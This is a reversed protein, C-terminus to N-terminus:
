EHLYFVCSRFEGENSVVEEAKASDKPTELTEKDEEKEEAPTELKNDVEESANAAKSQAGEEKTVNSSKKDLKKPKWLKSKNVLYKVERDLAAIKNM